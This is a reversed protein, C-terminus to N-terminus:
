DHIFDIWNFESFAKFIVCAIHILDTCFGFLHVFFISASFESFLFHSWNLNIPIPVCVCLTWQVDGPMAHFSYNLCNRAFQTKMATKIMWWLVRYGIKGPSIGNELTISSTITVTSYWVCLSCHERKLSFLKAALRCISLLSLVCGKFACHFWSEVQLM